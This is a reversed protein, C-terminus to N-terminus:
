TREVYRDGMGEIAMEKIHYGFHNIHDCVGGLGRRGATHM